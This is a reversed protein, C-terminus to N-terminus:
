ENLSLNFTFKSNGLYCVSLLNRIITTAKKRCCNLRAAIKSDPFIHKSNDVFTESKKLAFDEKAIQAAISIEARKLEFGAPTGFITEIPRCKATSSEVLICTARLKHSNMASTGAKSVDLLQKCTRCRVHTLDHEEFNKYRPDKFWKDLVVQDYRKKASKTASKKASRGDQSDSIYGEEGRRRKIPTNINSM